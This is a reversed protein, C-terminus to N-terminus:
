KAKRKLFFFLFLNKSILFCALCLLGPLISRSLGYILVASCVVIRSISFLPNRQKVRAIQKQSVRIEEQISFNYLFGLLIGCGAWLFYSYIM